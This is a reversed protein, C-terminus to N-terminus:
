VSTEAFELILPIHESFSAFSHDGGQVVKQRAGRYKAVAIGCNLVEDSTEVLLFYRTPHVADLCLKKWQHLYDETLEYSAGGDFGQQPGLHARLGVHPEVAPNILVARLGRKEAFWTAYFGGLSSGVLTIPRAHRALEADITAVAMDPRPPLQPCVFQAAEGRKELYKEPARAKASKPSSNFGHLYVIM